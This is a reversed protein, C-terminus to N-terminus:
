KIYVSGTIIFNCDNLYVFHIFHRQFLFVLILSFFAIKILKCIVFMLCVNIPYEITQLQIYFKERTLCYKQYKWSHLACISNRKFVRDWQHFKMKLTMCIYYGNLRHTGSAEWCAFSSPNVDTESTLKIENVSAKKHRRCLKMNWCWISTKNQIEFRHWSKLTM